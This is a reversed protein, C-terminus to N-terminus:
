GCHVSWEVWGAFNTVSSSSAPLRFRSSTQAVLKPWSHIRAKHSARPVEYLVLELGDRRCTGAAPLGLWSRLTPRGVALVFSDLAAGSPTLASHDWLLWVTWTLISRPGQDEMTLQALTGGCRQKHVRIRFASLHLSQVEARGSLM